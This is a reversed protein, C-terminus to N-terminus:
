FDSKCNNCHWQKGIKGSAAGVTGVSIARSTTSIKKINVSQCYPCKVGHYNNITKTNKAMQMVTKEFDQQKVMEKRYADADHKYNDYIKQRSRLNDMEGYIMIAGFGILIIAFLWSQCFIMLIGLVIAVVAGVQWATMIPRHSPITISRTRKELEIQRIKQQKKIEGELQANRIEEEKRRKIEEFYSKIGYGCNPCSEASDSVDERGCEPCKILAM